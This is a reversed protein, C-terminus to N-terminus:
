PKQLAIKAEARRIEQDIIDNASLQKKRTEKKKKKKKEKM